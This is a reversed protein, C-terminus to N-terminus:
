ARKIGAVWSLLQERTMFNLIREKRIRALNAAALGFEIFELQWPHHADTGLSIRVGSERALKLLEVDLDQRDPFCDIEVAKDLKAAAEFVKPWNAKLGVRYNYIRGRPHGLIHLSPNRLAACYRETQDETRRLASHFAGLTIDLDALASAELDGRGVVDLNLEVSRLVRFPSGNDEFRDNVTAIEEAQQRLENENIGGAIKLAKGHDTISIYQYGRSAAADAMQSVTGSGDSWQSHMQLDGKLFSPWKSNALVRKVETRTLFNQREPPPQALAPPSAMWKLILKELYPGVGQLETLSIKQSLLEAVERPWSLSARAARKLARQIPHKARTAEDALLDGLQGNTPVSTM